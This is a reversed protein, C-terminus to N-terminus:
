CSHPPPSDMESVVANIRAKLDPLDREVVNWVENLDIGFYHHVLIHRMGVILKWPVNPHKARTEASLARAAEGTVQVHHIMWVQVLEDDDFANRGRGAIREIKEVADLIDTLRQRDANM